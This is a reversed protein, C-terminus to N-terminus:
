NKFEVWEGNRFVEDVQDRYCWWLGYSYVRMGNKFDLETIKGERTGVRILDGLRLRM